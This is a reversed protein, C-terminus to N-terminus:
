KWKKRSKSATPRVLRDVQGRLFQPGDAGGPNISRGSGQTQDPAALNSWWTLSWHAMHVSTFCTGLFMFQRLPQPRKSHTFGQLCCFNLTAGEIRVLHQLSFVEGQLPLHVNNSSSQLKIDVNGGFASQLDFSYALPHWLRGIFLSFLVLTIYKTM